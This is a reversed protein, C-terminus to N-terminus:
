GSLRSPADLRPIRADVGRSRPSPALHPTTDGYNANAATKRRVNSRRIRKPRQEAVAAFRDTQRRSLAEVDTLEEVGIGSRRALKIDLATAEYVANVFEIGSEEADRRSFRDMDIRLM